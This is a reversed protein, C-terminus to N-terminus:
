DSLSGWLYTVYEIRFYKNAYQLDYLTSMMNLGKKEFLRLWTLIKLINEYGFDIFNNRNVCWLMTSIKECRNAFVFGM